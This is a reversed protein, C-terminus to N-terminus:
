RQSAATTFNFPYLNLSSCDRNGIYFEIPKILKELIGRM